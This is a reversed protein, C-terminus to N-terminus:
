YLTGDKHLYRWTGDVWRGLLDIDPYDCGDVGDRCDGVVLVVVDRETRNVLHHGNQRGAPFGACM